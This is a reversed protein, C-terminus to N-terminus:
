RITIQTRRIIRRRGHRSQLTLTYRGRQLPRLDTLVLESRGNAISVSVGTGYV